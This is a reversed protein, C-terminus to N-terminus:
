YVVQFLKELVEESNLLVKKISKIVLNKDELTGKEFVQAIRKAEHVQEFIPAISLLNYPLENKYLTQILKPLRAPIDLSVLESISLDSILSIIIIQLRFLMISEIRSINETLTKTSKLKNFFRIRKHLYATLSEVPIPDHKKSNWYEKLEAFRDNGFVVEGLEMVHCATPELLDMRMQFSEFDNFSLNIVNEPFHSSLLDTLQRKFDTRLIDSSSALLFFNYDSFVDEERRARSGYFLM